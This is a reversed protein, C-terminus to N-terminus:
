KVKEIIDFLKKSEKISTEIMSFIQEESLAEGGKQIANIHVEKEKGKSLALTLRSLASKDEELSPDFIFKEDIKYSTITVPINETLPLPNSSLNGYDVKDGKEKLKPFKANKLALVAALACADLLNGDDNIPYIDLFINWVLEGEKVCLKKFDIFSSERIGRDVVRALEIAEIRPPGLEFDDSALPSLEVTTILTGQDPSDPYPEGLDLKVGTIVETDGFKVRASGEAKKIPNIQAEIKRYELLGRKDLRRGKEVLEKIKKTTIKSIYMKKM